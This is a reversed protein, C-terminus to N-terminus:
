DSSALRMTLASRIDAFLDSWQSDVSQRFLRLTPYWPSDARDLMWRWDPVRKLVVWAPRGLAGALHAVSTDCTIILDLCDMVAATDLFADPGADFPDPLTEVVMNAPLQSLQEIGAGRQLSILRVGPIAAVPQLAALPFSRGMGHDVTAGQWCIGIKFGGAGLQGRWHAIRAPEAFLYPVASPITDLRTAFARPLSALPCHQDFTEPAEAEGLITVTSSLTSMLRRMSNQVSMVVRAGRSEALRVYRSFQITDGLGQDLYVFLSKGRIDAAGDWCPQAYRHIQQATPLHARWEYLPWGSDFRGQLLFLRGLNCKTKADDPDLACATKLSAIGEDIRALDTLAAARNFHGAALQSNLAVAIDASALAEDHRSLYQLAAARGAHAEALAPQLRIAHEFSELSEICRKLGLLASARHVHIEVRGPQLAAAQTCDALAQEFRGLDALAAARNCFAEFSQGDLSIAVDYSSLAEELRRCHRLAVGRNIHAPLYKPERLIAVDYSAIAELPRALEALTLGRLTHLEASDAGLEIARDYAAIAESRRGLERLSDARALHAEYFQPSVRIARDFSSLAEQRRGLARLAHGRNLLAAALDGDMSLARDYSGIAQEFASLGCLAHGLDAHVAATGIAQVLPSILTMAEAYRGTQLALVGFAHRIEFDDPVLRLVEQYGREATGFDGSEHAALAHERLEALNVM